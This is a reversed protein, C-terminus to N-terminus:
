RYYDLYRVLFTVDATTFAVGKGTTSRFLLRPPSPSRLHITPGDANILASADAATNISDRLIEEGDEAIDGQESGSGNSTVEEM